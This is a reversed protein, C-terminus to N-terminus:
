IDFVQPKAANHQRTNTKKPKKTAGEKPTRAIAIKKATKKDTPTKNHNAEKNNPKEQSTDDAEGM